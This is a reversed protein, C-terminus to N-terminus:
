RAGYAVLPFFVTQVKPFMKIEQTMIEDIVVTGVVVQNHQIQYINCALSRASFVGDPSEIAQQTAGQDDVIVIQGPLYQESGDHLGDLNQDFYVAGAFSNECAAAKTEALLPASLFFLMVLAYLVGLLSRSIKIFGQKVIM